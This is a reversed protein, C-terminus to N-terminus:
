DILWHGNEGCNSWSVVVYMFVLIILGFLVPIRFVFLQNLLGNVFFNWGVFTIWKGAILSHNVVNLLSKKCSIQWLMKLVNHFNPLVEFCYSAKWYWQMDDDLWKWTFIYSISSYQHTVIWEHNFVVFQYSLLIMLLVTNWTCSIWNYRYTSLPKKLIHSFIMFWFAYAADLCCRTIFSYWFCYILVVKFSILAYSKLCLWKM